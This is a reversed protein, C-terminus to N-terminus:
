LQTSSDFQEGSQPEGLGFTGREEWWTALFADLVSV